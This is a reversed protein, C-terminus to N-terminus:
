FRNAFLFYALNPNEHSRDYGVLEVYAKGEVNLNEKTGHVVCAGEWYVIMTSGRTDLEQDKMVPEVLLRMKREPIEVTWGSPYTAGSAESKWSGSPTVQFEEHSLHRYSGDKEVFVGSSYESVNNKSDRLQYVM